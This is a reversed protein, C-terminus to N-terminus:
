GNPYSLKPPIHLLVNEDFYKLLKLELLNYTLLGIRRTAPELPRITLM